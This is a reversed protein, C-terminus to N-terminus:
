DFLKAPFIDHKDSSLCAADVLVHCEQGREVAAVPRFEVIFLKTLVTDLSDGEYRLEAPFKVCHWHPQVSGIPYFVIIEAEIVMDFM